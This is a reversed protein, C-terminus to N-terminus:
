LFRCEKIKRSNLITNKKRKTRFYKRNVWNASDGEGNWGSYILNIAAQVDGGMIQLARTAMDMDTIGLERM